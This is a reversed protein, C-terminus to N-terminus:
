SDSPCLGKIREAEKRQQEAKAEKGYDIRRIDDKSIIKVGDITRIQISTRSQQLITGEVVSGDKLHIQEAVLLGPLLVVFLVLKRRNLMYHLFCLVVSPGM